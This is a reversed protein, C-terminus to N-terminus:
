LGGVFIPATFIPYLLKLFGLGFGLLILLSAGSFLRVVQLDFGKIVVPRPFIIIGLAVMFLALYPALIAESINTLMVAPGGEFLMQRFGPASQMWVVALLAPLVLILARAHRGASSRLSLLNFIM